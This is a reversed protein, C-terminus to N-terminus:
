GLNKLLRRYAAKALPRTRYASPDLLARYQLPNVALADSLSLVRQVVPPLSALLHWRTQKGTEITKALRVEDERTLLGFSGVAKFYAALVNYSQEPKEEERPAGEEFGEDTESENHLGPEASYRPGAFELEVTQPTTPLTEELEELPYMSM